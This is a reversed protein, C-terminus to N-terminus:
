RSPSPAPTFWGRGWYYVLGAYDYVASDSLELSEGNPVFLGPPRSHEPLLASVSPVVDAHQARFAAVSRRMHTPSTVLVFREMGRSKLLRTVILAQELTTRSVSEVFIHDRPVGLTVLADAIVEGEPTNQDVGATGGSAVVLPRGGLLKFVRAAELVRLTTSEYPYALVNAGVKLERTGGGLVVIARASEAERVDEISHFGGVLPRVLLMSGFPTSVFWYAVALGVFWRRGGRPRVFLLVVGITLVVVFFSVSGIGIALKAWKVIDTM